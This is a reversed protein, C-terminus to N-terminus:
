ICNFYRRDYLDFFSAYTQENESDSSAAAKLFDQIRQKLSM